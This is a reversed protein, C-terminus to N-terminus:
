QFCEPHELKGGTMLQSVGPHNKMWDWQRSAGLGGTSNMLETVNTHRDCIAMSLVNPQGQM